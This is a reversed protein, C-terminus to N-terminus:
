RQGSRRASGGRQAAARGLRDRLALGMGDPPPLSTVVVDCGQRDFHRLLDYLQRAYEPLTPPVPVVVDGVDADARTQPPLLLGVRRGRSRWRRAEDAIQGPDVLVVRARPAYHSAHQGPARVTPSAPTPVAQGWVQALEESTVGGPRLIQPQQGTVDVITSEVGVRCPGGDLVFDVDAGLGERVHAATTPSVSGFRNASPAAVGGGFASLLALAAPHDPVRVGVTDLGGTVVAPVRRHRRLVLTLPGPWFRAALRLAAPPPAEAWRDLRGADGIHVILPHSTPRGKVEFIRRVAAPNSADAGLGYVTETPFAVLGGGRLVRAAQEIAEDSTTM